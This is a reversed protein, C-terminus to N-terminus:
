FMEYSCLMFIRIYTINTFLEVAYWVSHAGTESTDNALNRIKTLVSCAEAKRIKRIWPDQRIPRIRSLEDRIGWRLGNSILFVTSTRANESVLYMFHLLCVINSYMYCIMLHTYGLNSHVIIYGIITKYMFM